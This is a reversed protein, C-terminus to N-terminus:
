ENGLAFRIAEPGIKLDGSDLDKGTYIQAWVPCHDSVVGGWSWGNPIWPSTLGERIVDSHGTFVEKTHKSIWINDYTKSGKMNANSINTYLNESICNDYGQNRMDDFDKTNPSLNFDGLLIIDKEGPLQDQISQILDPIKDIEEQLRILDENDLGTAKLHVSVLACDFRKIKFTAIFPRRTFPKSKKNNKALLCSSIVSIGQSEDYLFGNYENSKYMRGTADESVVCNWKGRHGSWKQNNPVTPSNLEDCIKQLATKDALEQVAIISLGNELITMCVVDKVGLNNAKEESFCELNWSAIKLANRNNCKFTPFNVPLRVPKESFPGLSDLLNELSEKSFENSPNISHNASDMSVDSSRSPIASNNHNSSSKKSSSCSLSDSTLNDDLTLQPKIASLVHPGIGKVKILDDINTFPGKKDRYTVINEALTQGVGKIKMLQFVNSSNLNFVRTASERVNRGSSPSNRSSGNSGNAKKVCIENRFTELKAAGVGSVLALDEVRKFGRIQKRYDIIQKATNRNIGTLTMLEEESAENIDMQNKLMAENEEDLLTMNFTASLQRRHARFGKNSKGNSEIGSRRPICCSNVAGM